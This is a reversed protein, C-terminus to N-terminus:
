INRYAEKRHRVYFVMITKIKTDVQYIVRYDRVRIRYLKQTGRLKRHQPPFPNSSLSEIASIIVPIEKRDVKRLDQEASKKWQIEYFGM